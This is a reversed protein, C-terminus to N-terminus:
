ISCVEGAACVNASQAAAPTMLLPKAVPVAEDAVAPKTPNTM